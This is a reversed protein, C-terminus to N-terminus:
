ASHVSNQPGVADARFDSDIKPFCSAYILSSQANNTRGIPRVASQNKELHLTVMLWTIDDAHSLSPLTSLRM